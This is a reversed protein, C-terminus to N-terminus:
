FKFERLSLYTAEKKRMMRKQHVSKDKYGILHLLGHVMVRALEKSFDVKFDAANDRVREVSIYVDGEVIEESESNDFTIIDTLTDHGLYERNINLLYKDSCFIYNLSGIRTNESDAVEILWSRTSKLPSPRFAIDECFFYIGSRM